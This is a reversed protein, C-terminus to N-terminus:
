LGLWHNLLGGLVLIVVGAVIGLVWKAAASLFWKRQPEELQLKPAAPLSDLHRQIGAAVGDVERKSLSHLDVSFTLHGGTEYGTAWVNARAVIQDYVYTTGPPQVMPNQVLHEIHVTGPKLDHQAAVDRLEEWTPKAFESGDLTTMDFYSSTLQKAMPTMAEVVRQNLADWTKWLDIDDRADAKAESGFWNSM